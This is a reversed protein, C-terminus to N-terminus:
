KELIGAHVYPYLKVRGDLIETFNTLETIDSVKINKRKLFKYTGGTSIEVGNEVLFNLLNQYVM